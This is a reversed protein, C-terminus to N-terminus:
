KGDPAKRHKGNHGHKDSASDAKVFNKFRQLRAYAEPDEKPLNKQRWNYFIMVGLTAAVGIALKGKHESLLSKSDAAGNHLAEGTAPKTKAAFHKGSMFTRLFGQHISDSNAVFAVIRNV